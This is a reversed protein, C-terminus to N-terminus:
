LIERTPSILPVRNQNPRAKESISEGCFVIPNKSINPFQSGASKKTIVPASMTDIKPCYKRLLFFEGKKSVLHFKEQSLFPTSSLFRMAHAMRKPIPHPSDPSQGPGAIPFIMNKFGKTRINRMVM